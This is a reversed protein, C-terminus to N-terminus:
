QLSQMWKRNRSLLTPIWWKVISWNWTRATVCLSPGSWPIDSRRVADYFVRQGGHYRGYPNGQHVMRVGPFYHRLKPDRCRQVGQAGQNWAAEYGHDGCPRFVLSSGQLGADNGFGQYFAWPWALLSLASQFLLAGNRYEKGRQLREGRRGARWFFLRSKRWKLRMYKKPKKVNGSIEEPLLTKCSKWLTGITFSM